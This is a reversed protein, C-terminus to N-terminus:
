GTVFLPDIKPRKGDKEGDYVHFVILDPQHPLANHPMTRLLRPATYGGIATNLIELQVTPYQRRLKAEIIKRSYNQKTISQGYFLIKVKNPKNKTSTSLLHMTRPIHKGYVLGPKDSPLSKVSKPLYGNKMSEQAHAQTLVTACFAAIVALANMPHM